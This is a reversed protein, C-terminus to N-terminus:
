KVDIWELKYFDVNEKASLWIESGWRNKGILVGRMSESYLLLSGESATIGFMSSSLMKKVVVLFQM